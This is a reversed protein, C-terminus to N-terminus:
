RFVNSCVKFVLCPSSIPVCCTLNLRSLVISLKSVVTLELIISRISQWQVKLRGYRGRGYSSINGNTLVISTLLVLMNLACWVSPM